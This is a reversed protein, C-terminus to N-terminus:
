SGGNSKESDLSYASCLAKWDDLPIEPSVNEFLIYSKLEEKAKLYKETQLEELVEQEKIKACFAYVGDCGYKAEIELLKKLDMIDVTTQEATAWSFVDNCCVNIGDQCYENLFDTVNKM